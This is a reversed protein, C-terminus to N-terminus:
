SYSGDPTEIFSSSGAADSTDFRSNPPDYYITFSSTTVTGDSKTDISDYTVKGKVQKLGNGLSQLQSLGNTATPTAGGTNTSTSGGAATSKTTAGTTNSTTVGGGGCASVLLLTVVLSLSLALVARKSTRGSM